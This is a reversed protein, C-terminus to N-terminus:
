SYSSPAVDVVVIPMQRKCVEVVYDFERLMKM